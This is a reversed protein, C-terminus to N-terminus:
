HRENISHYVSRGTVLEDFQRAAADLREDLTGDNAQMAALAQGAAIREGPASVPAQAQLARIRRRTENVPNNAAAEAQRAARQEREAQRAADRQAIMSAVVSAPLCRLGSAADIVIDEAHRRAVTDPDFGEALLL